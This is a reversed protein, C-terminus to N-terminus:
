GSVTVTAGWITNTIAGIASKIVLYNTASGDVDTINIINSDDGPDTSGTGKSTLTGTKINSEYVTIANGTNSGFVTVHTATKGVPIDVFAFLSASTSGVSVGIDVTGGGADTDDYQASKNAGGGEDSLFEHPLINIYTVSGGKIVVDDIAAEITAVTTADLADINSLTATGSSDTLIDTGEIALGKNVRLNIGGDQINLIEVEDVQFLFYGQNAAGSTTYTAFRVAQLVQTGSSYLPWIVCQNNASSGIAFQPNGNNVPNYMQVDNSSILTNVGTAGITTVGALTTVNPQSVTALTGTLAGTVTVAGAFTALKSSALRLVESETTLKTTYFLLDSTNTSGNWGSAALAEIRAGTSRTGDTDEAGKFEVVGLRHGLGMAAGDDSILQLKGGETASSATSSLVQVKADGGGDAAKVIKNNSDLGLHSGSAITGSSIDELYVDSRFRSILDYINQGIWKM